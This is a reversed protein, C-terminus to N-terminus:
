RPLVLVDEPKVEPPKNRSPALAYKWQGTDLDVACVGEGLRYRDLWAKVGMLYGPSRPDGVGYHPSHGYGNVTPLGHRLSLLMADLTVFGLTDPRTVLFFASRCWLPPPAVRDLRQREQNRNMLHFHGLNLQEALMCALLFLFGARWAARHRSAGTLGDTFLSGLASVRSLGVTTVVVVFLSLVFQFRQTIRIVSAGPVLRWIVWWLTSDGITVLCPWILVVSVGVAVLIREVTDLSRRRILKSIGFAASLTIFAGLLLPPLGYAWPLRGPECILSGWVFNSESTNWLDSVNQTNSLVEAFDRRPLDRMAPGYLALFGGLAPLFAVLGAALILAAPKAAARWPIVRHFLAIFLSAALLLFLAFFWGAYFNSLLLLGLLAGSSASVMAAFLPNRVAAQAGKVALLLILPVMMVGYNQAHRLWIYNLNSFTFLVAGFIGVGLGVRLTHSLLLLTAVYAVLTYIVLHGEFARYCDLGFARLLSYPFSGLFMSDTYGLVGEAPFYYGPANWKHIGRFVLYWHELQVIYLRNDGIYGAIRNGGSFIFDRFHITACLLYVILAVLVTKPRPGSASLLCFWTLPGGSRGGSRGPSESTPPRLERSM